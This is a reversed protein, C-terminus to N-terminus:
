PNKTIIRLLKSRPDQGEWGGGGRFFSGDRASAHCLVDDYSCVVPHRRGSLIFYMLITQLNHEQWTVIETVSGILDRSYYNQQM